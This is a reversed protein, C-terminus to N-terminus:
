TGWLIDESKRSAQKGAQSGCRDYIGSLQREMINFQLERAEKLPDGPLDIGLTSITMDTRVSSRISYITDLYNEELSSCVRWENAFYGATGLALLGAISAAAIAATRASM